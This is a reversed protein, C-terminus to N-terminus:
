GRMRARRPVAGQLLGTGSRVSHPSGVLQPHFCGRKGAVPFEASALGPSNALKIWGCNSHATLETTSCKRSVSPTLPEFGRDRVMREAISHELNTCRELEQFTGACRQLANRGPAPGSYRCTRDLNEGPLTSVAPSRSHALRTPM